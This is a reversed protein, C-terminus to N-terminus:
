ESWEENLLKKMRRDFAAFRFNDHWRERGAQGMAQARDPNSLLFVIREALDRPKELNVNYGTLGDINVEQGADHVSAIVPLGYRMAEIYVLGFGEKWSPQVFLQAQKWLSPMDAEPVFGLVEINERAPSSAALQRLLDLGDGGGALLLRANPIAKVVDPWCEVVERHGKRFNDKDSRGILLAVPPGDFGPMVTPAEDEETALWCVHANDLPGHIEQFRELTFRSNSLVFDAERLARKRGASLSDWVEVGHIWVGYPRRLGPLRGHARAMGVSDYLFRDHTLAAAHARMAYSLRSGHALRSQCGDIIVPESDLLSLMSFRRSERALVKASIRTVRAIGGKGAELLTAGLFWRCDSVSLAHEKKHRSLGTVM